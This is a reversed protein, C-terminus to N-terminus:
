VHGASVAELGPCFGAGNARNIRDVERADLTPRTAPM